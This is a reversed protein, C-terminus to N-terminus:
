FDQEYAIDAVHRFAEEYTLEDEKVLDEVCSCLFDYDYGTSDALDQIATAIDKMGYFKKEVVYTYVKGNPCQESRIYYDKSTGNGDNFTVNIIM